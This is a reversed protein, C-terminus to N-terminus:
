EILLEPTLSSRSVYRCKACLINRIMPAYFNSQHCSRPADLATMNRSNMTARMFFSFFRSTPPLLPLRPFPLPSNFLLSTFHFPSFHLSCSLFSSVLLSPFPLFSILHPCLPFSPARSIDHPFHPNSLFPPINRIQTNLLACKGM